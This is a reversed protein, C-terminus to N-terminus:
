ADALGERIAYRVLDVRDNMGLKKMISQMHGTITNPSRAVQAAIEARDLGRGIMRLIQQERTTLSKWLTAPPKSETVVSADRLNQLGAAVWLPSFAFEGRAVKRIGDCLSQSSELKSLYGWAGSALAADVYHERLYASYIIVRVDPSMRRVDDIAEFPDPGPLQIDLLVVMAGSECARNPLDEATGYGGVWELDPQSQILACLGELVVPHDDVALVKIPKL